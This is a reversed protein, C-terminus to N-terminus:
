VIETYPFQIVLMKQHRRCFNKLTNKFNGWIKKQTKKLRLNIKTSLCVNKLFVKCAFKLKKDTYRLGPYVLIPNKVM